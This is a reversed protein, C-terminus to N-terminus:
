VGALACGAIILGRLRRVRKSHTAAARFAASRDRGTDAQRTRAAAQLSDGMEDEAAGSAAGAM